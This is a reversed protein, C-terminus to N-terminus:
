PICGAGLRPVAMSCGHACADTCLQPLSEFAQQETEVMSCGKAIIRVCHDRGRIVGFRIDWNADARSNSEPITMRGATIHTDSAIEEVTLEVETAGALKAKAELLEWMSVSDNAGSAALRMSSM